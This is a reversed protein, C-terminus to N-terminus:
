NGTLKNKLTMYKYKYKIYKEKYGSGDMDERKKTSFVKKLKDLLINNKNFKSLSHAKEGISEDKIKIKASIEDFDIWMLSHIEGLEVDVGCNKGIKHFITPDRIGNNLFEKVSEHLTDYNILFISYREDSLITQTNNAIINDLMIKKEGSDSNIFLEEDLKKKLTELPTEENEQGGGIFNSFLGRDDSIFIIRGESLKKARLNIFSTDSKKFAEIKNSVEKFIEESPRLPETKLTGRRCFVKAEKGGFHLGQYTKCILVRPIERLTYFLAYSAYRTSSM